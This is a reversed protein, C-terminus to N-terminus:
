KIKNRIHCLRYLDLPNAIHFNDELLKTIDQADKQTCVIKNEINHIIEIFRCAKEWDQDATWSHYNKLFIWYAKRKRAGFFTVENDDILELIEKTDIEFIRHSLECGKNCNLVTELRGKVTNLIEKYTSGPRERSLENVKQQIYGDLSIDILAYLVTPELIIYPCCQNSHNCYDLMTDFLIFGSLRKEEQFDEWDLENSWGIRNKFAIIRDYWEGMLESMKIRLVQRRVEIIKSKIRKEM